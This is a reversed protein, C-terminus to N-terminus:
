IVPMKNIQGEYYFVGLDRLYEVTQKIDTHGCQEQVLKLDKTARYLASVGTHKWGYLDYGEGFLEMIKMYKVHKQWWYNESVCKVGPKGGYSFVYFHGPYKRVEHLQLLAELGPSIQVHRVRNMKASTERVVIMKEGVDQVQMLRIEQHPRMFTYYIFNAFFWTGDDNAESCLQKFTSIQEANFVRHKGTTEPLKKIYKFPNKTIVERRRYENFLSSVFGKHKNHSKNSLKKELIIYDTYAHAQESGFDRIQIDSLNDKQCFELFTNANSQYTEGSRTSLTKKKLGLFHTTAEFVTFDQSPQKRALPLAELVMGSKLLENVSEILEAADALRSEVTNGKARLRKLILKERKESWIKFNVLWQGALNNNAPKYLKALEYPHTKKDSMVLGLDTVRNRTVSSTVSKNKM